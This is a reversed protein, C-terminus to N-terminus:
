FSLLMEFQYRVTENISNIFNVPHHFFSSSSLTPPPPTPPPTVPRPVHSSLRGHFRLLQARGSRHHRGDHDGGGLHHFRSGCLCMGGILDRKGDWEVEISGGAM